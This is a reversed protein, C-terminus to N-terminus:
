KAHLPNCDDRSESEKNSAEDDQYEQNDYVLADNIIDPTCEIAPIWDALELCEDDAVPVDAVPKRLEDPAKAFELESVAGTQLCAQCFVLEPEQGRCHPCLHSPIYSRALATTAYVQAFLEQYRAAPLPGGAMGKIISQARRLTAELAQLDARVERAEGNVRVPVRHGWGDLSWGDDDPWSAGREEAKRLAEPTTGLVHAARERAETRPSKPRGRRHGAPEHGRESVVQQELQDVFEKIAQHDIM